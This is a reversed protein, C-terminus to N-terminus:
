QLVVRAKPGQEARQARFTETLEDLQQLTTAKINTYDPDPASSLVQALADMLVIVAQTLSVDARMLEGCFVNAFAHIEDRTLPAARPAPTSPKPM